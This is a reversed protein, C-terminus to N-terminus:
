EGYLGKLVLRHGKGQDGQVVEESAEKETVEDWKLHKCPSGGAEEPLPSGGPEGGERPLACCAGEGCACEGRRESGSFYFTCEAPIYHSVTPYDKCLKPRDEYIACRAVTKTTM